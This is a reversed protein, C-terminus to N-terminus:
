RKKFPNRITLSRIKQGHQMDESYLLNCGADLAASLILADYINYQYQAALELANEHVEVTLPTVPECLTRFATLADAIEAWPMKLKRHAVAAFENLVQVSIYGGASLLEEAAATRPDGESVAYILITTDFFPRDSM